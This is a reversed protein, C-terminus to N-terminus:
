AVADADRPHDLAALEAALTAAVAEVQPEHLMGVHDCALQVATWKGTLHPEWAARQMAHPDDLATLVLTRGDYPGTRYRRSVLSGQLHFRWYHGLRRNPMLGTTLISIMRRLRAYPTGTIV